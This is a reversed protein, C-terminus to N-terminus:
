LYCSITLVLWIYRFRLQGCNRCLKQWFVCQLPLLILISTIERRQIQSVCQRVTHTCGAFCIGIIWKNTSIAIGRQLCILYMGVVTELKGMRQTDSHVSCVRMSQRWRDIWRISMLTDFIVPFTSQHKCLCAFAQEYHTNWEGCMYKLLFCFSVGCKKNRKPSAFRVPTSFFSFPEYNFYIRKGNPCLSLISFRQFQQTNTTWM